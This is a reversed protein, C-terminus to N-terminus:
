RIIFMSQLIHQSHATAILISRHVIIALNHQSSYTTSLSSRYAFQSNNSAFRIQGPFWTLVTRLFHFRPGFQKWRLAFPADQPFIAAAKKARGYKHLFLQCKHLFLQRRCLDNSNAAKRGEIQVEIGRLFLTPHCFFAFRLQSENDRNLENVKATPTQNFICIKMPPNYLFRLKSQILCRALGAAWARAGLM